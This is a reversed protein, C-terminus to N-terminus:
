QRLTLQDGRQIMELNKLFSMGLLVQETGLGPAITARVQNQEIAGLRVSELRTLYARVTGNATQSMVAQGRSARVEQALEPSIAVGTAGTDLLFTVPVGNIAGNAVYHGMRNRQLVVEIRGDDGRGSSVDRNPNAQDALRDQFFLTLLGLLTVWALVSMGKGLAKSQTLDPPGERGTM